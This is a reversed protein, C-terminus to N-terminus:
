EAGETIGDGAATVIWTLSPVALPAVAAVADTVSALLMLTVTAGVDDVSSSLWLIGTDAESVFVESRDTLHSTFPM